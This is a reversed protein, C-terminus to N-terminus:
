GDIRVINISVPSGDSSLQIIAKVEIGDEFGRTNKAYSSQVDNRSSQEVKVGITEEAGIIKLLLSRRDGQNPMSSVICEGGMPNYEIYLVDGSEDNWKKTKREM